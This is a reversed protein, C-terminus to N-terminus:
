ALHDNANLLLKETLLKIKERILPSEIEMVKNNQRPRINILSTYELRQDGMKYPYLNAGWLNDQESGLNILEMEADAHLEGGVAIIEKEVDVVFKVMTSFYADCLKKLETKNIREHIILIM